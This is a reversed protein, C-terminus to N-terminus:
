ACVNQHEKNLLQRHSVEKLIRATDCDMRTCWWCWNPPTQTPNAYRRTATTFHSGQKKTTSAGKELCSGEWKQEWKANCCRDIKTDIMCNMSAKIVKHLQNLLAMVKSSKKKLTKNQQLLGRPFEFHTDRLNNSWAARMGNHKHRKSRHTEIRLRLRKWWHTIQWVWGRQGRDLELHKSTSAIASRYRYCASEELMPPSREAFM